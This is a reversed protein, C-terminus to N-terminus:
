MEQDTVQLGGQSPQQMPPMQGGGMGSMGGHSHDNSAHSHDNPGAAQAGHLIVNMFGAIDQQIAQFM